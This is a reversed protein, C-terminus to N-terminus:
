NTDKIKSIPYVTLILIIGLLAFLYQETLYVLGITTLIPATFYSFPRTIRFLSLMEPDRGDIKKFFYTEIMMEAAAAGIRTIFLLLAWVFINNETFFILSTTSIGMIIFGLFMMEKEGWRKDALKGLPVEILVFPILMITLIISIEQWNFGIHNHLYLPTYVTMWAYFTQLVINIIFINSIDRNKLIRIITDITSIKQYKSDHFNNFNKYVLYLLPLLIAFSAIYINKYNEGSILFGGLMPGFIWAANIATMYIGRITGTHGIDTNKQLFVDFTFVIMSIISLGLIFLPIIIESSEYKVIGYFVGIQILILLLSTRLNGIRKLLSNITLFGIITVFSILAYIIGISKEDVFQSLFSSNFYAPLSIHLASLFGVIAISYLAASKKVNESHRM